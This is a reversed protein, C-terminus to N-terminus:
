EGGSMGYEDEAMGSVAAEEVSGKGVARDSTGGGRWEWM